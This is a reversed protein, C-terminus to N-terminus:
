AADRVVDLLERARAARPEAAEGGFRVDYALWVLEELAEGLGADRAGVWRAAALDPLHGPVHWGREALVERAEEVVRSIPDPPRHVAAPLAVRVVVRRLGLAVLGVLAGIFATGLLASALPGAHPVVVSAVDRAVAVQREGDFGVFSEWALALEEQVRVVRGPAEPAQVAPTPDVTVWQDGDFYEVWAHAHYRRVVLRTPSTAEGGVFGNVVRTPVGALRGAVALASAFYECHGERTELLFRELPAEADLDRPARTYAYSGGLWASLADMRARPGEVDRVVDEVLTRVADSVPPVDVRPQADRFPDTRGPGFPPRVWATYRVPRPPGPLHYAGGADREVALGDADVGDPTGPVFLVGEPHAELDVDMRVADALAGAYAPERTRAAETWWRRGDFRDLAVGRFYPPETVPRDFRAEFVRSPDDLLDQMRGLEVDDSFGTLGRADRERLDAPVFRPTLLFIPVALAGVPVVVWMPTKLSGPMALVWALLAGGFWPSRTRTACVVLLLGVLLVDTEPRRAGSRQHVVFWALGVALVSELDMGLAVAAACGAAVLASALGVGPLPRLGVLTALAGLAVGLAPSGTCLALAIAVAVGIM